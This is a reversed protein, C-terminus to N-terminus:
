RHKIAEVELELRVKDAVVVGGAELAANWTLGFDQRNVTTSASFGARLGFSPDEMVGLIELDLEVPRTIGKITLDGKLTFQDGGAESVSTSVFRMEPYAEVDFFDASRLHADRQPEGTDVTSVDIKAEVKSALVDAPDIEISGSIGSFRGRVKSVMLHRAVFQATTHAPDIDWTGAELKSLM